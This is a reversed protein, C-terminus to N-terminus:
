GINRLVCGCFSIVLHKTKLFINTNCAIYLCLETSKIGLCLRYGCINRLGSLLLPISVLIGLVWLVYDSGCCVFIIIEFERGGKLDGLVESHYEQKSRLDIRLSPVLNVTQM